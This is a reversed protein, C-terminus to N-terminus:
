RLRVQCRDSCKSNGFRGISFIDVKGLPADCGNDRFLWVAGFGLYSDDAPFAHGPCSDHKSVIPGCTCGINLNFALLSLDGWPIKALRHVAAARKV